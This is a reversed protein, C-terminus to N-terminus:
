STKYIGIWLKREELQQLLQANEQKLKEIVRTHDSPELSSPKPEKISSSLIDFKLIRHLCRPPLVLMSKKLFVQHSLNLNSRKILSLSQLNSLNLKIRFHNKKLICWKIKLFSDCLHFSDLLLRLNEWM